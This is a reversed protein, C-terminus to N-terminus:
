RKSSEGGVSIVGIPEDTDDPSLLLIFEKQPIPEFDHRLRVNRTLEQAYGFAREPSYYYVGKEYPWNGQRHSSIANLLAADASEFCARMFRRLYRENSVGTLANFVTGFGVAVDFARDFPDRMINRREFSCDPVDAYRERAINIASTIDIGHYERPTSGSDELFTFFDGFGCGVDLVSADAFDYMELAIKFRREMSETSDWFLSEPNSEAAEYQAEYLECVASEISALEEDTLTM